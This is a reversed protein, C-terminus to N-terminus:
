EEYGTENVLKEWLHTFRGDINESFGTALDLKIVPLRAASLRSEIATISALCSSEGFSEDLDELPRIGLRYNRWGSRARRHDFVKVLQKRLVFFQPVPGVSYRLFGV